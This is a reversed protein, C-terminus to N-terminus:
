VCVQVVRVQVFVAVPLFYKPPYYGPSPPRANFM